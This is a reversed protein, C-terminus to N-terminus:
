KRNLTELNFFADVGYDYIEQIDEETATHERLFEELYEKAQTKKKHDLLDMKFNSVPMVDCDNILMNVAENAFYKEHTERSIAIVSPFVRKEEGGFSDTVIEIKSDGEKMFCVVTNSTGFDIGITIKM